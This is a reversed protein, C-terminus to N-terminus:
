VEPADSEWQCLELYAKELEALSHYSAMSLLKEQQEFTLAPFPLAAPPPNVPSLRRTIRDWSMVEFHVNYRHITWLLARVRKKQIMTLEQYNQSTAVTSAILVSPLRRFDLRGIVASAVWERAYREWFSKSIAVCRHDTAITAYHDLLMIQDRAKQTEDDYDQDCDYKSALLVQVAPLCLPHSAEVDSLGLSIQVTRFIRSVAVCDIVFKGISDWLFDRCVECILDDADFCHLRTIQELRM